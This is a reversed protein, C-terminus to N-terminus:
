LERVLKWKSDKGSAYLRRSGNPLPRYDCHIFTAYRTIRSYDTRELILSQLADLLDTRGPTTWDVAGLGHFCHQSKGNRGQSLEWAVPRYGSQQSATIPFGLQARVRNMPLLHYKWLKDAVEQPIATPMICLESTNFYHKMPNLIFFPPLM